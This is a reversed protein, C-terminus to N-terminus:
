PRRGDAATLAPDVTGVVNAGAPTGTPLGEHVVNDKANVKPAAKTSAGKRGSRAGTRTASTGKRASAKGTGKRPAM